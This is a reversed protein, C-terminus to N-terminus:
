ATSSGRGSSSTARNQIPNTTKNIQTHSLPPFPPLTSTKREREERKRRRACERANKLFVEFIFSGREREGGRRRRVGVAFGPLAARLGGAASAAEYWGRSFMLSTHFVYIAFLVSIWLAVVVFAGFVQPGVGLPTQHFRAGEPALLGRYDTYGWRLAVEAADLAGPRWGWGRRWSLALTCVGSVAIFAMLAAVLAHATKQKKTPTKM